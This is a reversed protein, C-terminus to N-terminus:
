QQQVVLMKMIMLVVVVVHTDLVYFFWKKHAQAQTFLFMSIGFKSEKNIKHEPILQLTSSILKGYRSRSIPKPQKQIRTALFSFDTGTM